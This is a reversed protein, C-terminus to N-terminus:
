SKYTSVCMDMNEFLSTTEQLSVPFIQWFTLNQSPLLLGKPSNQQKIGSDNQKELFILAPHLSTNWTSKMHLNERETIHPFVPTELWEERNLLRQSELM